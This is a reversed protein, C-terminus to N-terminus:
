GPAAGRRIIRRAQRPPVIATVEAAWVIKADEITPGAISELDYVGARSGKLLRKVVVEGGALEAVVVHGVMDRSPTTHQDEFYILSGEDAVGRMSHGRVELAVAKDSGGPPIPVLDGSEQGEAYLVKGSPDAGVYGVIPAMRQVPAASDGEGSLLWSWSVGFREAYEKAWRVDILRGNDEPAREHSRYTVPKWGFRRAVDEATRLEPQGEMWKLRAQRLRDWSGTM